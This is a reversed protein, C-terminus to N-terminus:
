NTIWLIRCRYKIPHHYKNIENTNLSLLPFIEKHFSKKDKKSIICAGTQTLVSDYILFSTTEKNIQEITNKSGEWSYKVQVVAGPIVDASIM